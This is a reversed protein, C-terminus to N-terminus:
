ETAKSKKNQCCGEGGCEDGCGEGCGDGCGGGCCEGTCESDEESVEERKGNEYWYLKKDDEGVTTLHSKDCFPQNKSLGCMCINKDGVTVPAHASKKVLRPM